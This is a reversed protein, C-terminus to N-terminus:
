RGSSNVLTFPQCNSNINLLRTIFINTIGPITPASDPHKDWARGPSSRRRSNSTDASSCHREALLGSPALMVAALTFIHEAACVYAPTNNPQLSLSRSGRVCFRRAPTKLVGFNCLGPANEPAVPLARVIREGRAAYDFTLGAPMKM